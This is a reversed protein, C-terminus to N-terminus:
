SSGPVVRAFTRVPPPLDDQSFAWLTAPDEGLWHTGLQYTWSQGVQLDSSISSVYHIHQENTVRDLIRLQDNVQIRPFGPVTLSNTRWRFLQRVAILGAMLRAETQSAFGQDTWGGVRRLGTPNTPFGNASARVSGDASSIFTKERQSRSSLRVGLETVHLNSDLTLMANTRTVGTLSTVENGLRFINPQRFQARGLEDFWFLFGVIDRVQVIADMLPKKDFMSVPLDNVGATGTNQINGWVRGSGVGLVPDLRPGLNYPAPGFDYYVTSGDSLVEQGDDPWYLGSWALALKVIDAYDEYEGPLDGAGGVIRPPVFQSGAGDDITGGDPTPVEKWQTESGAGLAYAERVGARYVNPGIGSDQLNTFTWRIRQVRTYTQRLTALFNTSTIPGSWVFPINGHNRALPDDSDYPIVDGPAHQLWRGDVMISIFLFMGSYYPKVGVQSVAVSACSAEIWEYAFGYDPRGNGVSLWYTGDNNDFAERGYHGHVAGGTGVYPYNSDNFYSLGLRVPELPVTVGNEDTMSARGIAEPPDEPVGPIGGTGFFEIPGGDNRYLTAGPAYATGVRAVVFINWKPLRSDLSTGEGTDIEAWQQAGTLVVNTTFRKEENGRYLIATVVATGAGPGVKFSLWGYETAGNARIDTRLSTIAPEDIARPTGITAPTRQVAERRGTNLEQYVGAVEFLYPIGNTLRPVTCGRDNEDLEIDQLAGDMYVRFGVPEYRPTYRELGGPGGFLFKVDTVIPGIHSSPVLTPSGYLYEVARRQNNSTAEYWTGDSDLRLYHRGIVLEGDAGPWSDYQDTMFYDGAYQSPLPEDPPVEPLAGWSLVVQKNGPTVTFNPPVDNPGDWDAVYTVTTAPKFGSTKPIAHFKLPYFEKPVVPPHSIHDIALRGGDRCELTIGGNANLLVEDIIWTGTQLLYPDQEPIETAVHTADPYYGEFTRVINDPRLLGHYNNKAHGFQDAFVGEGYDPTLAGERVWDPILLTSTLPVPNANYLTITCTATDADVNREWTISEVGLIERPRNPNNLLYSAYLNKATAYLRMRGQQVTIRGMPLVFDGTNWAKTMSAPVNRM